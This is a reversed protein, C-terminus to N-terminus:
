NQVVHRIRDLNKLKQVLHTLKTYLILFEIYIFWLFGFWINPDTQISSIKSFSFISFQFCQLLIIKLYTFLVTPGIKLSFILLFHFKHTRSCHGSASNVSFQDFTAAVIWTDYMFLLRKCPSFAHFFFLFLFSFPFACFRLAAFRLARDM